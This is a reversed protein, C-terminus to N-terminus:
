IQHCDENARNQVPIIGKQPLNPGFIMITQKLHFKAALSFQIQQIWHHYESKRNEVSLVKHAFKWGQKPLNTLVGSFAEARCLTKNLKSIINSPLCVKWKVDIM